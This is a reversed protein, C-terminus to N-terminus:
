RMLFLLFLFIAFYIFFNSKAQVEQVEKLTLTNNKQINYSSVTNTEDLPDGNFTLQGSYGLDLLKQVIAFILDSSEVDLNVTTQTEEVYVYISLGM